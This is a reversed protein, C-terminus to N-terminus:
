GARPTCLIRFGVKRGRHRVWASVEYHAGRGLPEQHPCLNRQNESKGRETQRSGKGNSALNNQIEPDKGAPIKWRHFVVAVTGIRV